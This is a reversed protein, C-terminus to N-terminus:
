KPDTENGETKGGEKAEARAARAANRPDVLSASQGSQAYIQDLNYRKLREWDKTDVVSVGCINQYFEVLITKDPHSLDVKHRKDILGAVTDIIEKRKLASHNRISPRIGYTFSPTEVAPAPAAEGKKEETEEDDAEQANEGEDGEQGEEAAVGAEGAVLAFGNRGLVERACERLGAVTAKGFRGMPTLRNLFRHTRRGPEGAAEEAIRRCLEAPDVAQGTKFFLVCQVELFV